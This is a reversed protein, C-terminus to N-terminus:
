CMWGASSRRSTRASPSSAPRTACTWATATCGSAGAVPAAAVAAGAGAGARTLLGSGGSEARRAGGALQSRAAGGAPVTRAIHDFIHTRQWYRDRYKLRHTSIRSPQARGSRKRPLRFTGPRLDNQNGLLGELHIREKLANILGHLDVAPDHHSPPVPWTVPFKHRESYGMQAFFSAKM